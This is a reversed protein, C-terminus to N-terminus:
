GIARTTTPWGRHRHVGAQALPLDDAGKLFGQLDCGRLLLLLLGPNAAARIAVM